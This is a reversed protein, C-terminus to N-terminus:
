SRIDKYKDEFREIDDEELYEGNQVEILELELKGPNELRHSTSRPVYASENEHINKKIDGITITAMGRIVVWHESRHRHLQLSLKESPNVVVHKIKYREGEELITFSGWPRYHTRHELTEKRQAENLMKVLKKVKQSEDKHAILLADDTEVVIIDKLGIASVLRKSSFLFSGQTDETVIDGIKVNGQNDKDLVSFLAEFSGIDNWSIDKLPILVAKKTKEMIANDIAINPLENFRILFENHQLSLYEEAQPFYRKIENIMIGIRFCFIGCNWYCNNEKFLKRVVDPSPKEIFKDVKFASDVLEKVKIYGYGTNESEPLVGFVVINDRVAYEEASKLYAHFEENPSILHDSPLIAVIEDDKYKKEKVLFNLVMLLAGFTNRTEPEFLLHPINGNPIIKVLDSLIHFKHKAHSSIFIDSVPYKDLCRLVTNQFFSFPSNIRIFQKPYDERSLPWLRTGSGGALIAIKM